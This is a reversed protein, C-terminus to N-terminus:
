EEKKEEDKKEDDKDDGGGGGAPASGGQNKSYQWFRMRHNKWETWSARPIELTM